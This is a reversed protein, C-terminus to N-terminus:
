LDTAIFILLIKLLKPLATHVEGQLLIAGVTSSELVWPNRNDPSEPYETRTRDEHRWMGIDAFSIKLGLM